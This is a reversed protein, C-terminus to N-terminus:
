TQLSTSLKKKEMNTLFTSVLLRATSTRKSSYVEADQPHLELSSQLFTTFAGVMIRFYKIIFHFIPLGKYKHTKLGDKSWDALHGFRLKTKSGCAHYLLDHHKIDNKVLLNMDRLDKMINLHATDTPIPNSTTRLGVLQQLM